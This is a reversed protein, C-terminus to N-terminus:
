VVGGGAGASATVVRRRRCFCCCGVMLTCFFHRIGMCTDTMYFYQGIDVNTTNM